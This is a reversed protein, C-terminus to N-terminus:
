VSVKGDVNQTLCLFKNNRKALEALAFHAPNPKAKLAMHRRYNYFQWVLSPDQEVPTLKLLQWIMAM